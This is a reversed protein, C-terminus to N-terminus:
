VSSVRQTHISYLRKFELPILSIDLCGSICSTWIYMKIRYSAIFIVGEHSKNTASKKGHKKKKFFPRRRLRRRWGGMLWLCFHTGRDRWPGVGRTDHMKKAYKNSTYVDYATHLPLRSRINQECANAPLRRPDPTQRRSREQLRGIDKCSAVNEM